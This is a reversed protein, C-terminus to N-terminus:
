PEAPPSSARPQGSAPPLRCRRLTGCCLDKRPCPPREARGLPLEPLEGWPGRPSVSARLPLLVTWPRVTCPHEFGQARAPRAPPPPGTRHLHPPTDPLGWAWSPAQLVGPGLGKPQLPSPTRAAESSHGLCGTHGLPAAAPDHQSLWGAEQGHARRGARAGTAPSPTHRPACSAAPVAPRRPTPHSPAPSGRPHEAAPFVPARPRPGEETPERSPSAGRRPQGPLGASPAAEGRAEVPFLDDAREAPPARPASAPRVCVRPGRAPQRPPEPSATGGDTRGGPCCWWCGTALSGRPRSQGPASGMAEPGGLNCAEDGRLGPCIRPGWSCARAGQAVRRLGTGWGPRATGEGGSRLPSPGASAPGRSRQQRPGPQSPPRQTPTATHEPSPGSTCGAAGERRLGRLM